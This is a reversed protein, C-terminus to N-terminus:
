GSRAQVYEEDTARQTARQAQLNPNNDYAEAIADALTEASARTAMIGFAGLGAIAALLGGRVRESM